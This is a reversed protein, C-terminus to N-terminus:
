EGLALAAAPPVKSARVAPLVSALWGALLAAAAILALRLWPVSPVMVADAAILASVGAFGYAAGLVLGLVVAVAALLVAEWGLSARLQRRTLRVPSQLTSARGAPIVALIRATLYVAKLGAHDANHAPLDVPPQWRGSNIAEILQGIVLLAPYCTDNHVYKLGTDVIGRHNTQLTECKYGSLQLCRAFMGFHIPLMQPILLTYDRKMEKTFLLRGTRDYVLKAM